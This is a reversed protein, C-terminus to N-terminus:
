RYKLPLSDTHIIVALEEAAQKIAHLDASAREGLQSHTALLDCRALIVGLKNNLDHILLTATSPSHISLPQDRM